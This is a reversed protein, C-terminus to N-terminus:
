RLLGLIEAQDVMNHCGAGIHRDGKTFFFLFLSACAEPIVPIGAQAPIKEKLIYGTIQSLGTLTLDHDGKIKQHQAGLETKYAGDPLRTNVSKYYLPFTGFPDILLGLVM